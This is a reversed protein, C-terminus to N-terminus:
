SKPAVECIETISDSCTNDTCVDGDECGGFGQFDPNNFPPGPFTIQPEPFDCGADLVPDGEDLLPGDFGPVRCDISCNDFTENVTECVGNGCHTFPVPEPSECLTCNEDAATDLEYDCGSPNTIDFETTLTCVASRCANEETGGSMDQCIGDDPVCEFGGGGDSVCVYCGPGGDIFTTNSDQCSGPDGPLSAPDCDGPQAMAAGASLLVLSCAIITSRISLRM